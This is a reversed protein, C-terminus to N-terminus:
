RSMSRHSVAVRKRMPILRGWEPDEQPIGEQSYGQRAYWGATATGLAELHVEAAGLSRAIREAVLVLGLGVGSGQESDEVALMELTVFREGGEETLILRCVGLRKRGDVALFVFNDSQLSWRYYDALSFRDM